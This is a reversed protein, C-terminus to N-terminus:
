AAHPPTEHNREAELTVRMARTIFASVTEDNEECLERVEDALKPDVRAALM